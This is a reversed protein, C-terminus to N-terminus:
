LNASDLACRSSEQTQQEDPLGDPPPHRHQPRLAYFTMETRNLSTRFVAKLSAVTHYRTVLSYTIHMRRIYCSGWQTRDNDLTLPSMCEERARNTDKTSDDSHRAALGKGVNNASHGLIFSIDTNSNSGLAGSRIYKLDSAVGRRVAHTLADELMGSSYLLSKFSSALNTGLMPREDEPSAFNGTKDVYVLVPRSADLPTGVVIQREPNQAAKVLMNDFTGKIVGRRRLVLILLFIPNLLINELRWFPRIDRSVMNVDQM